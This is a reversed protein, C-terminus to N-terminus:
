GESDSRSYSFSHAFWTYQKRTSTLLKRRQLAEVAIEAASKAVDGAVFHRMAARSADNRVNTGAAM